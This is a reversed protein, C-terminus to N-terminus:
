RGVQISSNTIEGLSMSPTPVCYIPVPMKPPFSPMPAEFNLVQIAQRISPRSSSYPHICWLGVIMLCDAQREDFNEQVKEDVGSLVRGKGYLDWVWELMGVNSEDMWDTSKRGTTIELIVVGFSYVDSEKSAKRTRIYEPAMYGLTGALGTTMQGVDHDMLKALGFDGFKANFNSDLMINSSKIDRHLICQEWGEHLYLIKEHCWGILQVLNWHSLQSIIKVGTVYEKKGLKSRKSIRKVVILMDINALYGKYVADFGGEGLKRDQSFNNSASALDQYSFRNPGTGKEFDDNISTLNMAEAKKKGKKRKKIIISALFAGILLVVVPVVTGVVIKIKISLNRITEKSDLSSHFQWSRLTHQEVYQGTAASFAITVWEPLVKALDIQCSLSSNELPNKTTQSSWSVSLNKTTSNYSVMVDTIDENHFSADWSTYVVSAITNNNIGVHSQVDQPDWEPNNFTDFEVTVIKNLPFYSTTTNFLGLFGGASNPPIQFEVHALFFFLEMALNLSMKHTLPSPSILVLTQFSELTPIGSCSKRHM